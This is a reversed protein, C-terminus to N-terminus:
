FMKLRELESDKSERIYIAGGHSAIEELYAYIQLARNISDTKTDGTLESLHEHAQSTSRQQRSRAQRPDPAASRHWLGRRDPRDCRQTVHPTGRRERTTRERHASRGPSRHGALVQATGGKSMVPVVAVAVVALVVVVVMMVQHEKPNLIVDPRSRPGV